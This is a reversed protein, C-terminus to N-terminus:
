HLTAPDFREVECLWGKFVIREGTDDCILAFWADLDANDAVEGSFEGAPTTVYVRM